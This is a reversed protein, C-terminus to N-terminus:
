SCPQLNLLHPSNYECHVGRICSGTEDMFHHGALSTPVNFKTEERQTLSLSSVCEKNANECVVHLCLVDLARVCVHVRHPRVRLHARINVRATTEEYKYSENRKCIREKSICVHKLVSVCGLNKTRTIWTMRAQAKIIKGHWTQQYM